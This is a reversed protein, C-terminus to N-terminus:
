VRDGAECRSSGFITAARHYNRLLEFGAVLEAIIKFIRWSEIEDEIPSPCLLEEEVRSAGTRGVPLNAVTNKEAAFKEPRSTKGDDANRDTDNNKQKKKIGFM